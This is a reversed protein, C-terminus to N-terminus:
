RFTLKFIQRKLLTRWKGDPYCRQPDGGGGGGGGGKMEGGRRGEGGGGGGGETEEQGGGGGGGGGETEGGTRGGGGGGGETEARRGGGGRENGECKKNRWAREFHWRLRKTVEQLLRQSARHNKSVDFRFAVICNLTMTGILYAYHNTYLSTSSRFTFPRSRLISNTFIDAVSNRKSIKSVCGEWCGVELLM